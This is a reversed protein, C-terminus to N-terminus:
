RPPRPRFPSAVLGLWPKEARGPTGIAMDRARATASRSGFLKDWISLITAYNSNTDRWVAHHHVWHISPTVVIWSLARELAPPLRLNSHHFITVVLVLAEFALVSSLPIQFLLIVVARAGASLLVEGFHFRIASTTDLFRDLHHVEHFRWLLTVNHNARHWWYILFDLLLLDFLLGWWGTLGAPRLGLDVGAAWASVPVVVALSLLSNIVWLGANGALRPWDGFWGRATAAAPLLREAAFLLAFWLAVAIGKFAVLQDISADM